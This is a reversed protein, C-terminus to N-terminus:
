RQAVGATWPRDETPWEMAVYDRRRKAAHQWLYDKPHNSRGDAFDYILVEHKDPRPRLARGVRQLTQIAPVDAAHGRGGGGALILVDVEPLDVGEDFIPSAIMVAGGATMRFGRLGDRRATDTEGGWLFWTPPGDKLFLREHRSLREGHAIRSCLVLVKEGATTHRIATNLIALNRQSNDTIGLRYATGWLAGGKTVLLRPNEQWRPEVRDRVADVSPYTTPALRLMVVHPQALFGAQALEVTSSTMLIPGTAGELRFDRVADGTRPTASLGFRWPAPCQLSLRWWSDASTHHCEDLFLVSWRAWFNKEQKRAALTQVMAVTVLPNADREWTAREANVTGGLMSPKFGLRDALRQGTQLLLEKRHVLYLTPRGIRRVLESAVETKGSGTPAQIACRRRALAEDCAKTQYDRLRVGLLATRLPRCPPIPDYYISVPGAGVQELLRRVRDSLGAPFAKRNAQYFSLTGKYNPWRRRIYEAGKVNAELAEAVAAEATPPAELTAWVNGCRIVSPM